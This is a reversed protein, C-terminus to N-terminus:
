TYDWFTHILSFIFSLFTIVSSFHRFSDLIHHRAYSLGFTAVKAIRPAFFEKILTM